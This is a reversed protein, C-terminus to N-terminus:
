MVEGLVIGVNIASQKSYWRWKTDVMGFYGHWRPRHGVMRSRTEPLVAPLIAETTDHTKVVFRGGGTLTLTRSTPITQKRWPSTPEINSVVTVAM